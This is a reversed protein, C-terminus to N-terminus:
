NVRLLFFLTLRNGQICSFQVSCVACDMEWCCVIHRRGFYRLVLGVGSLGLPSLWPLGPELSRVIWSRLRLIEIFLSRELNLGPLTSVVTVGVPENGGFAGDDLLFSDPLSSPHTLTAALSLSRNSSQKKMSSKRHRTTRQPKDHCAAHHLMGSTLNKGTPAVAKWHLLSIM